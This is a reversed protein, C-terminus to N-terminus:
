ATGSVGLLLRDIVDWDGGFIGDDTWFQMMEQAFSELCVFIDTFDRLPESTEAHLIIIRDDSGCILKDNRLFSVSGIRFYGQGHWEPHLVAFALNDQDICIPSEELPDRSFNRVLGSVSVQGEFFRAGNMAEYFARIRPPIPQGIITEIDSIDAENLGAYLRHLYAYPGNQSQHCIPRFRTRDGLPEGNSWRSLLEVLNKTTQDDTM